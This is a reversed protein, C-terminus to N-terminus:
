YRHGSPAAAPFGGIIAQILPWLNREPAQFTQAAVFM